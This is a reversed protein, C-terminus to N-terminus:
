RPAIRPHTPPNPLVSSPLKQTNASYVSSPNYHTSFETFFTKQIYGIRKFFLRM